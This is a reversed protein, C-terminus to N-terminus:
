DSAWWMILGMTLVGSVLGIFAAAGRPGEGDVTPLLANIVALGIVMYGVWLVTAVAAIAARRNRNRVM